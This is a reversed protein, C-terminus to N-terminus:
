TETVELEYPGVKQEKFCTNATAEKVNEAGTEEQHGTAYHVPNGGAAETHASDKKNNHTENELFIESAAIKLLGVYFSL